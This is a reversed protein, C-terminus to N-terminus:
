NLTDPKRKVYSFKHRKEPNKVWSAVVRPHLQTLCTLPECGVTAHHGKNQRYQCPQCDLQLSLPFLNKTPILNKTSDSGGMLVFTDTGLSNSYHSVGGENGIFAKAKKILGGVQPLSLKGRLDKVHSPFQKPGDQPLGVVAINEFQNSLDIWHSHPYQKSRWNPKCGPWLVIEYSLEVKEYSTNLKIDKPEPAGHVEFWKLYETKNWYESGSLDKYKPLHKVSAHLPSIFLNPVPHFYDFGDFADKFILSLNYCMQHDIDDYFLGIVKSHSSKLFNVFPLAQIANGLGGMLMIFAENAM